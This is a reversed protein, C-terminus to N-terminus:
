SRATDGGDALARSLAPIGFAFPLATLLVLLRVLWNAHPAHTSFVYILAVCVVGLSVLFVPLRARPWKAAVLWGSAVGLIAAAGLVLWTSAHYSRGTHHFYASACAV